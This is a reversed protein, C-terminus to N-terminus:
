AQELCVLVAELITLHEKFSNSFVLKDDLYVLASKYKLKSLVIDMCRQSTAPANKVNFENLLDTTIFATKEKSEPDM